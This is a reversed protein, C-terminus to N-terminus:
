KKEEITQFTFILDKKLDATQTQEGDKTKVTIKVPITGVGSQKQLKLKYNEPTVNSPLEYSIQGATSGNILTDVFMGFYTKNFDENTLPYSVLKRDKLVSGKPTYVRLYTHYDSTRWDGHTATHTYTYTLYGMPKEGTFDATYEMSRKVYADSKLAGMNADVLMLYDGDWETDITGDWKVSKVLDQLAPDTFHLMVNKERLEELALEVVKPIKDVTAIHTVIEAAIKKMINKRAQKLEAPVDEGLYSKEVVEELKLAGNDSSFTTSYGAPTIPGTIELIHDFVFANVAIVGDFKQGGGALRYFYQAKDANTPFDPSFNSDRFKWKKLQLKRTLPYPPTIKAIIRQDLLNADEVFNSIVAGDKLKIIAYQGLFGGGPRLEYNNQLMVLYTRTVGDKKLLAEAIQNVVDIEKKTDEQIPLLKSVKTLFSLGGVAFEQKHSKAFFAFFIVAILLAVGLIVFFRKRTFWTPRSGQNPSPFM